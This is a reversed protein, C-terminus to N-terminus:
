GSACMQCGAPGSPRRSTAGLSCRCKSSNKLWLARALLALSWGHLLKRRKDQNGNPGCLPRIQVTPVADGRQPNCCAPWHSFPPRSPSPTLSSFWCLSPSGCAELARRGRATASCSAAFPRKLHKCSARARADIFNSEDSSTAAAAAAAAAATAALVLRSKSRLVIMQLGSPSIECCVAGSQSENMLAFTARSSWGM